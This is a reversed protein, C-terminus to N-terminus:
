HCRCSEGRKRLLSQDRCIALSHSTMLLVFVSSNRRAHCSVDSLQAVFPVCGREELLMIIKGVFRSDLGYQGIIIAQVSVISNKGIIMHDRGIQDVCALVQPTAKNIQMIGDDALQDFLEQALKYGSLSIHVFPMAPEQEDTFGQLLEGLSPIMRKKEFVFVAKEIWVDSIKSMPSPLNTWDVKDEIKKWGQMSKIWTTRLSYEASPHVRYLKPERVVNYQMEEYTTHWGLGSDYMKLEDPMRDPQDLCRM